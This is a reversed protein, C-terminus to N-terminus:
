FIHFEIGHPTRSEQLLSNLSMIKVVRVRDLTLLLFSIPDYLLLREDSVM